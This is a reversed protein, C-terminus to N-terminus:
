ENTEQENLQDIIRIINKNKVIYKIKTIKEEYNNNDKSYDFIGNNPSSNNIKL